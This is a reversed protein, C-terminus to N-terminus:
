KAEQGCGPQSDPDAIAAAGRETRPKGTSAVALRSAKIRAVAADIYAAKKPCDRDGRGVMPKARYIM